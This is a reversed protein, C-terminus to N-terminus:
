LAHIRGSEPRFPFHHLNLCPPDILFRGEGRPVKRNQDVTEPGPPYRLFREFRHAPHLVPSRGRIEPLPEVLVRVSELGEASAVDAFEIASPGGKDGIEGGQGEWGSFARAAKDEKITGPVGFMVM